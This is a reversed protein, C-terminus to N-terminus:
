PRSLQVAGPEWSPHPQASWSSTVRPQPPCKAKSLAFCKTIDDNDVEPPLPAAPPFGSGTLSAQPGRIGPSAADGERVLQASAGGLWLLGVTCYCWM